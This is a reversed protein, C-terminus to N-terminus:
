FFLNEDLRGAVRLLAHQKQAELKEGPKPQCSRKNSTGPPSSLDQPSAQFEHERNRPEGTSGLGPSDQAHLCNTEDGEDAQANPLLHDLLVQALRYGGEKLDERM